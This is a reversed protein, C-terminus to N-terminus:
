QQAHKLFIHLIPNNTIFLEVLYLNPWFTIEQAKCLCHLLWYVIYQAATM